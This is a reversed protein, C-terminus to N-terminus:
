LALAAGAPLRRRAQVALSRTRKQPVYYRQWAAEPIVEGIAAVLGYLYTYYM